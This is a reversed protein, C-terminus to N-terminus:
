WKRSKRQTTERAALMRARKLDAETNINFFSLREPDFRGLEEEEVYRVKVSDFFDRIKLNGQKILNEMPKMCNKSYVAHLPEMQDGIRPIVVDFGPAMKVMYRLLELNLFPMDCAVVLNLFNSSHVLGTYIGILSGTEPYLDVVTKAEPYTYSPLSSRAQKQSIVILIEQSLSSLRSIAREILSKGAIVEALKERGLRSSRGGALIISTITLDFSGAGWSLFHGL